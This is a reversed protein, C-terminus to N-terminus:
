ICLNSEKQSANALAKLYGRSYYIGGLCPELGRTEFYSMIWSIFDKAYTLPSKSAQSARGSHYYESLIYLRGDAGEGVLLFVTANSQGYDIGASYNLIKPPNEVIQSQKFGGYILGEAAVWRGLIFREYFVGTHMSKMDAVYQPQLFTNDEITFSMSFVKDYGDAAPELYKKMLWHNPNDPNTTAFIKANGVRMRTTLMSFIDEPFLSVEDCYAGHLSIGRIKTEAKADNAGELFIMKGFLWAEKQSCSFTFNDAGVIRELECLANRKLTTITKGIMLYGEKHPSVAVWFAWLVLSIYTKGSSVAGQLINIRKFEGYKLIGLLEIQKESFVDAASNTRITVATQESM